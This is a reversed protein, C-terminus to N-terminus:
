ILNNRNVIYEKKEILGITFRKFEECYKLANYSNINLKAFLKTSKAIRDFYMKYKFEDKEVYNSYTESYAYCIGVTISLENKNFTEKNLDAILNHFHESFEDIANNLKNAIEKDNLVIKTFDDCNARLRNFVKKNEFRFQNLHRTLESDLITSLSTLILMADQKLQLQKNMKFLNM